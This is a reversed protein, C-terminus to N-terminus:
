TLPYGTDDWESGYHRGFYNKAKRNASTETYFTDHTCSHRIRDHICNALSPIGILFLYLLGWHQSQIYHGYEHMFLQDFCAECHSDINIFCGLSVGQTGGQRWHENVVYTAGGVFDVRNITGFVNRLEAFLWGIVTQPLEWSFRSFLQWIRRAIGKNRDTVFLGMCIRLANMSRRKVESSSAPQSKM